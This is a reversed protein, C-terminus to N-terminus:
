AAAWGVSLGFGGALDDLAIAVPRDNNTVALRVMLSGHPISGLGGDCPAHLGTASIKLPPSYASGSLTADLRTTPLQVM